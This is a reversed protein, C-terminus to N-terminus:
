YMWDAETIYLQNANTKIAFLIFDAYDRGCENEGFTCDMFDDTDVNDEEINRLKGISLGKLECGTIVRIWEAIAEENDFRKGIICGFVKSAKEDTMMIM